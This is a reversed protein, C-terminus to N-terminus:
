EDVAELVKSISNDLVFRSRGEVIRGSDDRRTYTHTITWGEQTSKFKERGDTIQNNLAEMQKDLSDARQQYLAKKNGDYMLAYLSDKETEMFARKKDLALYGTTQQYPKFYIKLSDFSLPKYDEPSFFNDNCYNQVLEHAKDVNSKHCSALVFLSLFLPFIRKM